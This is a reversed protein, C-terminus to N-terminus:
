GRGREWLGAADCVVQQANTATLPHPYTYPTWGWTNSFVFDRGVQVYLGPDPCSSFPGNNIDMFDPNTVDGGLGTNGFIAFPRNPTADAPITDQGVQYTVPYATPCGTSFRISPKNPYTSHDPSAALMMSNNALVGTGGRVWLWKNIPLSNSIRTFTNEYFESHRHGGGTPGSDNPASSHLVVSCDNFINHRMVLRTGTDADPWTELIGSCTNDEFYINREGTTDETGISTPQTWDTEGTQINFVDAGTAPTSVFDNHHLLGGNVLGIVMKNVGSNGATFLYNNDIIFPRDSASGTFTVHNDTGTFRFGSVRTIQTSHKTMTVGGATVVTGGSVDKGAGILTIGTISIGGTWNCSAGAPVQVTDGAAALAIKANVDTRSCTSAVLTAAHATMASLALSLLLAFCNM